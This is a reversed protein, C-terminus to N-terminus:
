SPIEPDPIVPGGIRARAHPFTEGQVFGVLPM